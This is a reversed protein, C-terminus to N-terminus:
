FRGSLVFVTRKNITFDHKGQKEQFSISVVCPEWLNEFFMKWVLNFSKLVMM